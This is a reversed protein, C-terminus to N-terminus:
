IIDIAEPRREQAPRSSNLKVPSWETPDHILLRRDDWLHLWFLMVVFVALM